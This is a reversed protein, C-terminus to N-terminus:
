RAVFSSPMRVRNPPLVHFNREVMYVVWMSTRLGQVYKRGFVNPVSIKNLIYVYKYKGDRTFEVLTREPSM